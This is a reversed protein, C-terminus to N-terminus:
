LERSLLALSTKAKASQLSASRSATGRSATQAMLMRKVSRCPVSESIRGGLARTESKLIQDTGAVDWVRVTGGVDASAVYFGSPSLKASTVEKTHQFYTVTPANEDIPRIFVGRGNTYILANDKYAAVKTSSGRNVVPNPPFVHGATPQTAM